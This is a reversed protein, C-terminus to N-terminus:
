RDAGSAAQIAAVALAADIVQNNNRDGSTWAGGHVGVVAPFPGTGQPRYLKALLPVGDVSKYQVDETSFKVEANM